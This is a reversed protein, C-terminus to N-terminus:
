SKTIPKGNIDVGVRNLIFILRRAVEIDSLSNPKPPIKLKELASIKSRDSEKEAKLKANQTQLKGIEKKLARAEKTLAANALQLSLISNSM